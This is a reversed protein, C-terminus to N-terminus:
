VEVLEPCVLNETDIICSGWSLGVGFGSFLLTLRQYELKDRLETVLTLPISASSTNGFRDISYPYKEPAIKLQKRITENILKNAQHFIFYDINEIAMGSNTLLSKVNPKVDRLTFNFVELGNLAIQTRKRFIGESIKEEEFSTEPHINNRMGGDPIYIAKYGSGDTNLDFFAPQHGKSFELATATGADGFLPYTSKDRASVNPSPVEGALLLAKRLFGHALMSYVVSLGYVYGSCGMDIDFALCSKSLGLRDQLICATAPMYYDRTQSVFVLLDIDDKDWSLSRILKGAAYYCLDSSTTGESVHRKSTVGITKILLDRDNKEVWTYDNNHFENAPVCASIGALKVDPISFFAM